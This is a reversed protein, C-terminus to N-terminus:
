SPMNTREFFYRAFALVPWHYLYLGYSILGVAVLPKASLWRGTLTVNARNTWIILATSACPLAAAVGPFETNRGYCAFSLGLGLAGSAALLEAAIQPVRVRAGDLAILAGVLLEWARGPLLYFADDADTQVLVLGFAFSTGCLIGIVATMAERNGNAAWRLAYLVPPFLLYFQEEVALSWTHLLPKTTAPGSFYGASDAFVANSYFFAAGKLSKSFERFDRPVLLMIATLTCLACTVFLAPLIRRCRREYFEAFSFANRGMKDQIVGTILFGSLVFFIDVGVYGGTVYSFNCHFLIVGLVAIARLGDIFRHYERRSESLPLADPM